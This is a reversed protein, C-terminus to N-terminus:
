ISVIVDMETPKNKISLNTDENNFLMTKSFSIITKNLIRASHDILIHRRLISMTSDFFFM